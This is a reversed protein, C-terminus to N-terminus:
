VAAVWSRSLLSMFGTSIGFDKDAPMPAGSFGKTGLAGFLTAESAPESSMSNILSTGLEFGM